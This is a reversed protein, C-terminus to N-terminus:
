FEIKIIEANKNTSLNRFCYSKNPGIIFSKGNGYLLQGNTEDFLSIEGKIIIFHKSKDSGNNRYVSNSNLNLRKVVLKRSNTIIEHTGWKKHNLGGVLFKSLNNEKLAAIVKRVDQTNDNSSVLIANGSEIITINDLNLAAILRSKNDSYIQINSNNVSVCSKARITNGHTDKDQLSYVSQWSGIDSWGISSKIVGLNSSKELLARDISDSPCKTFEESNLYNVHYNHNPNKSVHSGLTAGQCAALIEPCYQKMEKLFQKVPLIFIGSNWEFGQEIYSQAQSHCPKEIFKDIAYIKTAQINDNIVHGSKIYGYGTEAYSAKSSFLLFKNTQHALQCADYVIARFKKPQEIRSDSSLILMTAEPDARSLFLAALTIAPATSKSQPELIIEASRVGLKALQDEILIKQNYNTIIYPCGSIGDLDKIRIITDQFLSTKNKFGLFQKPSNERSAPWLRNGFGGCLIVPYIM